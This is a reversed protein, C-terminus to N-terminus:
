RITGTSSRSPTTTWRRVRPRARRVARRRRRVRVGVLDVGDPRGDAVIREVREDDAFVVSVGANRLAYTLEGGTWWSNLPVVIAGTLAAGWFSVVFEPLNRMAIAVRDGPRVGFTSQLARALSRSRRRVDAFTLREDDLVVNVLAEHAAGMHFLDVITRPARVFDRLPVGDLVVAEVEFPAGPGILPQLRPDDRYVPAIGPDAPPSGTMRRCVLDSREVTRARGTARRFIPSSLKLHRVRECQPSRIRVGQIRLHEPFPEAVREPARDRVHRDLLEGATM